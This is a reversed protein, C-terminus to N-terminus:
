VYHQALRKRVERAGVRVITDESLDSEPARGFVEVALYREKLNEQRGELYEDCVFQLFQQCRKSGHFSPSLLLSQLEARIGEPGPAIADRIGAISPNAEITKSM